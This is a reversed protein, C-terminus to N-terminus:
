KCISEKLAKLDDKTGVFGYQEVAVKRTIAARNAKIANKLAKSPKYGERKTQWQELRQAREEPTLFTRNAYATWADVQKQTGYIVTGDHKTFPVKDSKTQAKAKAKPASKTQGGSLAQAVAQAIMAQLQEQTLTITSNNTNNSKRTRTSM